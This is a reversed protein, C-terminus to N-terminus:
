RRSNTVTGTDDAPTTAGTFRVKTAGRAGLREYFGIAEVNWSPTQWQVERHGGGRAAAMVAQMLARGHGRGRAGDDLYLCDLHLYTRGSWTSFDVTATAYGSLGGSEGDVVWAALRPSQGFLADALRERLGPGDHEAREYRAHECCLRVIEPVDAPAAPRIPRMRREPEPM